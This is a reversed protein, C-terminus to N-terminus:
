LVTKKLYHEFILYNSVRERHLVQRNEIYSFTLSLNLIQKETFHMEIDKVLSPQQTTSPM